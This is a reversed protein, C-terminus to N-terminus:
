DTKSKGLVKRVVAKNRMTKLPGSRQLPSAVISPNTRFKASELQCVLEVWERPVHPITTGMAMTLGDQKEWQPNLDFRFRKDQTIVIATINENDAELRRPLDTVCVGFRSVDKVTGSSFGVRDSLTIDMGKVALRPYKRKEM